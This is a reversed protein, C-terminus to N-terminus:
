EAPAPQVPATDAPTPAPEVADKSKFFVINDIYLTCNGEGAISGCFSAFKTLDAKATNILDKMPIVADQWDRTIKNGPLYDTINIQGGEADGAKMKFSWTETGTDGKVSVMLTDCKSVDVTAWAWPDSPAICLSAYDGNLTYKLKLSGKKAGLPNLFVIAAADLSKLDLKKDEGSVPIAQEALGEIAAKGGNGIWCAKWPDAFSSGLADGGRLIKPRVFQSYGIVPILAFVIISLLIKRFM